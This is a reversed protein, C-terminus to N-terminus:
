VSTSLFRVDSEAVCDLFGTLDISGQLATVQAYILELQLVSVGLKWEDLNSLIKLIQIKLDIETEAIKNSEVASPNRPHCIMYLLQQAQKHSLVSDLLYEKGILKKPEKLCRDYVWNENAITKLVFKAFDNLSLTEFPDQKRGSGGLFGIGFDNFDTENTGLIDSLTMEKQISSPLSSASAAAAASENKSALEKEDIKDGLMQIMKLVAVIAPTEFKISSRSAALLYRDCPYKIMFKRSHYPNQLSSQSYSQPTNSGPTSGLHGPSTLSYLITTQSGLPASASSLLSDNTKFLCYLLHCNFRAGYEEIEVTPNHCYSFLQPLACHFMFDQMSFCNRAILVSIFVAISDHITLDKIDIKNTADQYGFEKNSSICLSRLIGLWEASLPNCRATLEACFIAVENVKDIDKSNAISILVNCVFSYRFSDNECLQKIITPEVKLKPNAIYDTMFNSNLEGSNSKATQTTYYLHKVKTFLSTLNEFSKSKFTSHSIYIDYLFSLICREASTCDSPDEVNQVLKFCNQFIAVTQESSVLLCSQYKYLVGIIYLAVNPIYNAALLPCLQQLQQEIDPMEKLLQSCFEILDHINLANEMLDFLFAISEILPLHSSSKCAVGNFMELCAQASTYTVVNQDFYSLNQFKALIQDFNFGDKIVTKKIKGGECIDMSFKRNFLKVVEKLVKKIQHRAEDRQKGCGYLLIHRQNSDHNTNEDQPLPFHITYLLHRQALSKSLDNQNNANTNVKASNTLSSLGASLINSTTTNDEKDSNYNM